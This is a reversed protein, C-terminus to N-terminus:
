IVHYYSGDKFILKGYGNKQGNLFDGEYKAIDKWIEIGKGHKLDNLWLGKYILGTKQTLEGYGEANNDVWNGEYIDDNSYHLKGYGNMKDNQWNGNYVSGDKWKYTGFGHRKNVDDFEGEYVGNEYEIVRKMVHSQSTDLISEEKEKILNSFRQKNFEPKDSNNEKNYKSVDTSKICDTQCNGM